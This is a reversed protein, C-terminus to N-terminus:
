ASPSGADSEIEFIRDTGTMELVLRMQANPDRLKLQAGTERSKKLCAILFSFGNSDMLTIESCDIVISLSGGALAELLQHRLQEGSVADLLGVPRISDHIQTM